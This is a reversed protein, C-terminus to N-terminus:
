TTSEGGLKLASNIKFPNERLYGFAALALLAPFLSLWPGFDRGPLLEVIRYGLLLLGTLLFPRWAAAPRAGAGRLAPEVRPWVEVPLRRRRQSGLLGVLATLQEVEVRCADCEGLHADIQSRAMLPDEGDVVALAAARVGECQQETM